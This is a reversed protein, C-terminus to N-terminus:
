EAAYRCGMGKAGRARQSRRRVREQGPARAVLPERGGKQKEAEVRLRGQRGGEEERSGSM